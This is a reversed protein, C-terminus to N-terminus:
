LFLRAMSPYMIPAANRNSWPQSLIDQITSFHSGDGRWTNRDLAFDLAKDKVYNILANKPLLNAPNANDIMEFGRAANGIAAEVAPPLQLDALDNFMPFAFQDTAGGFKYNAESAPNQMLYEMRDRMSPTYVSGGDPHSTWESGTNSNVRVIPAGTATTGLTVSQPSDASVPGYRTNGVQYRFGTKPDLYTIAHPDQASDAGSDGFQTQVSGSRPHISAVAGFDGFGNRLLPSLYSGFDHASRLDGNNYPTANPGNLNGISSWGGIANPAYQTITGGPGTGIIPIGNSTSFSAERLGAPLNFGGVGVGASGSGFNSDVLGTSAWNNMLRGTNQGRYGYPVVANVADYRVQGGQGPLRSAENAEAWFNNVDYQPLSFMQPTTGRNTQINEWRSLSDRLSQMENPNTIRGERWAQESAAVKDRYLPVLANSADMWSINNADSYGGAGGNYTQWNNVSPQVWAGIQPQQYYQQPQQYYQPQQYQYEIYQQPTNNIWTPGDSGYATAQGNNIWTPM